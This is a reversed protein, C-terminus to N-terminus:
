RTANRELERLLARAKQIDPGYREPPAGAAFRTLAERAREVRGQEAAVLGVNYLLDFDRPDLELARDWADLAEGPRRLNYLAVGLYNWAQVLERNEAVAAEAETRATRWDQRRLAVLALNQHAQPNRPDHEFVRQLTARAEDQRGAESLIKGLVNLNEPNRSAALPELLSLAEGARGLQAMVLGLQRLLEESAVGRDVARRMARLAEEPRGRELLVQGLHYYAVGLDPQREVLDRAAATARELHGRQYLDIFEHIARDVDVLRKPDDEPGYSQQARASGGLYGLGRLAALEESSADEREPPWTSEEPLARALRKARSRDSDYLNTREEPDSRLDYLEPLPLAIMKHGDRIIGRLPAWGRNLTASLAEFYTSIPEDSPDHRDLLSRGALDDPVPEGVADLLTPLLDVHRAPEERRGPELGPAWLVLPVKLTSEYAFLGHTLEGHDGLGEGHDSTFVVLTPEERGELFRELLPALFADVAAAEGLYRDDAFRSAFPEPPEYPAHPDYLHLWLFRREGAHEDWWATGREVVESGSREAMRFEHAGGGEPYHDDYLDFGRDLGFRADLPFAGVVAGTAFGADGLLTAATPITEPLVFGSNDRIGHEYPLRGTLINAHSPLTVVNHAYANEYVRGAAALRDLAPTEAADNGGFGVADFRLTDITILLLNRVPEPTATEADSPGAASPTSPSTAGPGTAKASPARAESGEPPPADGSCGGLGGAVAFLCAVLFAASTRM